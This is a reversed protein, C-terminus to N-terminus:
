LLQLTGSARDYYMMYIGEGSLGAVTLASGGRNTVAQTGAPSTLVIPLTGTTGTPVSQGLRVLLIGSFNQSFTFDSRFAFRVDATGVTIGTSSIRPIGGRNSTYNIPNITAMLAERAIGM